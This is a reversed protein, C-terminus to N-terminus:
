FKISHRPGNNDHDDDRKARKRRRKRDWEPLMCGEVCALIATGVLCDFWDWEKSPPKKWEDVKRGEAEARICFQATLHDAFMRHDRRDRPKGFLTLDGPSGQEISLRSHVFSKWYNSDGVYHRVALKQGRISPRQWHHGIKEGAKARYASLPVSTAGFWKGHYPTVRSDSLSKCYGYIVSQEYSADIALREIQLSQGAEGTFERKMLQGVLRDLGQRIAGQESEIGLSKRLTKRLDTKSFYARGQEPYCGYDIVAGQFEDSWGTVCWFLCDQQVDIFATVTTVWSPCLGREYGNTRKIIDDSTALLVQGEAMEAQPENNYEALFGAPDEFYLDMAHQLADVDNAGKCAKWGVLGGAMMEKRNTRYFTRAQKTDRGAEFESRRIDDYQDWLDMREPFQYLMKTRLGQWDPNLSKDLLRDALDGKRIVTCPIFVAIDKGPGALRCVARKIVMERSNSQNDSWASEETQPDDVIALDPRVQEGLSNKRKAGRIRGTIGAVRIVSESSVSGSVVPCVFEDAGWVIRTREGDLLQGGCRRAEGELARVAHCVEPFDEYLLDNTELETKISDLISIASPRDSGVIMVFKRLGYLIAWIVGIETLTTKGSGRPMAFAFHGGHRVAHEIKEIAKKHDESLELYVTEPFYKTAFLRLSKECRNRRRANGVKPLPGIDRGSRSELADRRHVREKRKGYSTKPANIM